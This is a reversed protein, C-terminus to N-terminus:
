ASTRHIKKDAVADQFFNKNLQISGYMLLEIFIIYEFQVNYTIGQLAIVIMAILYRYDIKAGKIAILGMFAYQIIFGVIGRSILIDIIDSEAVWHLITDYQGNIRSISYGSSAYGTGFLGTFVGNNKLAEPYLQYYSLHTKSSSDTQTATIRYFLFSIQDFIYNAGLVGIVVIIALLFVGAIQVIRRLKVNNKKKMRQVWGKTRHVGILLITLVVGILATSNGCVAADFLILLRVYLSDFLLFALVLMPALVASHWVFASPYYTEQRFFTPNEMLHLLDTFLLQNTDLEFVSHLAFQIPLYVIQILFGWKLWGIVEEWRLRGKQCDKLLLDYSLFSPMLVITMVLSYGKFSHPWDTLICSGATVLFSLFFVAVVVSHGKGRSSWVTVICYLVQFLIFFYLGQVQFNGWSLFLMLCMVIWKKLREQKSARKIYHTKM